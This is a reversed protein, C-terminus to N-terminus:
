WCIQDIRHLTLSHVARIQLIIPCIEACYCRAYHCLRVVRRRLNRRSNWLLLTSNPQECVLRLPRTPKMPVLTMVNKSGMSLLSYFFVSGQTVQVGLRGIQLRICQWQALSGQHQLHRDIWCPPSSGGVVRNLATREVSQALRATIASAHESLM